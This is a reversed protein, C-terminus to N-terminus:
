RQIFLIVCGYGIPARIGVAELVCSEQGQIPWGVFDSRDRSHHKVQVDLCSIFRLNVYVIHFFTVKHVRMARLLLLVSSHM